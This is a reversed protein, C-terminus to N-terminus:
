AIEFRFEQKENGEDDPVGTLLEDGAKLPRLRAAESVTLFVDLKPLPRGMTRELSRLGILAVNLSRYRPVIINLARHKTSITSHTCGGSLIVRTVTGVKTHSSQM